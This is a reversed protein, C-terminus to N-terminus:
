DSFLESGWRNGSGSMGMSQDIIGSDQENGSESLKGGSFDNNWMYHRISFQEDLQVFLFQTQSNNSHCQPPVSCFCADDQPDGTYFLLEDM